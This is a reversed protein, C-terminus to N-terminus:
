QKLYKYLKVASLFAEKDGETDFSWLVDKKEDFAREKPLCIVCYGDITMANPQYPNGDIVSIKGSKGSLQMEEWMIAYGACQLIPVRDWIKKYTKIDGIYRKGDKKFILDCTGAVWLSRSYLRQESAIFRINERRAWRAFPDIAAPIIYEPRDDFSFALKPDGANHEICLRVWEEVLAHLDTGADAAKDRKKAHATRAEALVEAFAMLDFRYGIDDHEKSFRTVNLALYEATMNAAWQILAPKAIVGLVTTIGTYEKEGQPDAYYHHFHSFNEPVYLEESHKVLKM